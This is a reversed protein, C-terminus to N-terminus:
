AQQDKKEEAAPQLASQEELAKQKKLEIKRDAEKLYKPVLFAYALSSLGWSIPWISWLWPLTHFYAITNWFALIFVVRYLVVFILSVVTSANPHALGRCFAGCNDMIADLFYTLGIFLLRRKGVDLALAWNTQAAEQSVGDGGFASLPLFLSLLPKYFIVALAGLFLSVGATCLLCERIAKHINEKNGAGYNQSAVVIITVSFAKLIMSIYGEVQLSAANGNMAILRTITDDSYTNVSRQILVNSLAFVVYQLGAPLGNKLIRKSETPFIQLYNVTLKAFDNKSSLQFIIILLCECAQSIVTALGVAYVDQGGSNMKCGLVFILNLALNVIGSGVLVYLPKWADGLARLCAAGFNFIILFPMGIFVLQMYVTASDLIEDPTGMAMLQYRATFYGIVSVLLGAIVAIVMASQITKHAAEKSNKGRSRALVVNAGVSLGLFFGVYLNILANNSSIAAFSKEGGGFNSVVLQDASYFLLQFISLLIIPITFVVMKRFLHDTTFDTRLM